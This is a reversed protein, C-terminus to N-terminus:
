YVVLNLIERDPAFIEMLDASMALPRCVVGLANLLDIGSTIRYQELYTVQKVGANIILKACTDCPSLTTYLHTGQTSIGYRAAYAIANAEAHVTRQCGGNQAISKCEPSCHPAGSPAGAYGTSIVRGEHSVVAGVQKRGCTSRMAVIMAMSM